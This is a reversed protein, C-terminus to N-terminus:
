GIDICSGAIRCLISQLTCLMEYRQSGVIGLATKRQRASGILRTIIAKGTVTGLLNQTRCVMDKLIHNLAHGIHMDGNAYPPGDHLIFKERGARAERLKEYLGIEEWRAQIGPEKQPLGAKMPFDTKPLFVTDKYDREPARMETM